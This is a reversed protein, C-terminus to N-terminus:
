LLICIMGGNGSDNVVHSMAERIKERSDEPVRSLKQNLGERVLDYLSKGFIDTQWISDPDNEFGDMMYHLLDEGQKETGVTPSVETDIDVQM